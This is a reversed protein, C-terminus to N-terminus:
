YVDRLGIAFPKGRWATQGGNDFDYKIGNFTTGIVPQGDPGLNYIWKFKLPPYTGADGMEGESWLAITNTYVLSMVQGGNYDCVTLVGSENTHNPNTSAHIPDILNSDAGTAIIAAATYKDNMRVRQVKREGRSILFIERSQQGYGLIKPNGGAYRPSRAICTVNKAVPISFLKKISVDGPTRDEGGSYVDMVGQQQTVYIRRNIDVQSCCIATIRGQTNEKYILTPLISPREAFTPPYQGAGLGINSLGPENIASNRVFQMLASFDFACWMREEKSGLVLTGVTPIVGGRRGGDRFEARWKSERLDSGYQGNVEESMRQYNGEWWWTSFSLCTAMRMETPTDFLGLFKQWGINGHGGLGPVISRWEGRFPIWGNEGGQYGGQPTSALLFIGVRNRNAAKDMFIMALLEHSNSVTGAIPVLNAPVQSSTMNWATNQGSWTVRGDRYGIAISTGEGFRGDGSALCTPYEIREGRDRYRYQNIDDLDGIGGYEPLWSWWASQPRSTFTDYGWEIGLMGSVGIGGQGKAAGRNSPIGLVQGYTSSYNGAQDARAVGMQYTGLQGPKGARAGYVNPNQYQGVVDLSKDERKYLTPVLAKDFGYHAATPGHMYAVQAETGAAAALAQFRAESFVGNVYVAGEMPPEANPDSPTTPTSSTLFATADANLGAAKLAAAIRAKGTEINSKQNLAGQYLDNAFAAISQLELTQRDMEATEITYDRPM